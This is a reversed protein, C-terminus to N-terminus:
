YHVMTETFAVTGRAGVTRTIIRYTIGMSPNGTFYGGGEGYILAGHQYSETTPKTVPLSVCNNLNDTPALAMACLRTILYRTENSDNVKHQTPASLCVVPRGDIGSVKCGNGDWDVLVLNPAKTHVSAGTPDLGLNATAYYGKGPQDLDLGPGQQENLFKIARETAVSGAQLADRKLSVNGLVLSATDISRVLAVAGMTLVALACLAFLMSVGRQKLVRQRAQSRLSRM